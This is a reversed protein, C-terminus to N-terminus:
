LIAVAVSEDSREGVLGGGHLNLGLLGCVGMKGCSELPHAGCTDLNEVTAPEDLAGGVDEEEIGAALVGAEVLPLGIELVKCADGGRGVIMPRVLSDHKAVNDCPKKTLHTKEGENTGTDGWKGQGM